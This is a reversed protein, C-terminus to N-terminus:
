HLVEIQGHRGIQWREKLPLSWTPLLPCTGLTKILCCRMLYHPWKTTQSFVTQHMVLNSGSSIPWWHSGESSASDWRLFYCLVCHQTQKHKSPLDNSTSKNIEERGSEWNVLDPQWLCISSWVMLSPKKLINEEKHVLGPYLTLFELEFHWAQSPQM